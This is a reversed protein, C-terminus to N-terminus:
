GDQEEFFADDISLLVYQDRTLPPEAELDEVTPTRGDRDEQDVHTVEAAVLKGKREAESMTNTGEQRADKRTVVGDWNDVPEVYLKSSGLSGDENLLKSYATPSAEIQKRVRELWKEYGQPKTAEVIALRHKTLAETSQRYVSSKPIERLRDLTQKYTYILAPRPAPHNLVGTLGTPANPELFKSASKVTAM